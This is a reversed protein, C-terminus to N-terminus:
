VVVVRSTSPAIVVHSGPIKQELGARMADISKQVDGMTRDPDFELFIEIYINAGSRRSRVGHFAVYEDYYATLERLIVLQLSEDLARDLLDAANKSVVNYISNVLFGCLVLSAIPDIYMSWPHDEMALTLGLAAVVCVNAVTKTRFLHWQSEMVPSRDHRAVRYTRLWRITNAGTAYIAVFFGLEVQRAVIPHRFRDIAGSLAVVLSVIMVGGVILSSFNELKGYGYEYALAKGKSIRRIMLWTMGCAFTEGLNRLLDTFITLSNSILSATLKLAFSVSSTLFNVRVFREKVRYASALAALRSGM